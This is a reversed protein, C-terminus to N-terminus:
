PFVSCNPGHWGKSENRLHVNPALCAAEVCHSLNVVACEVDIQAWVHSSGVFVRPKKGAVGSAHTGPALDRPAFAEIVSVPLSRGELTRRDVRVRAPERASVRAGGPGTPGLATPHGSGAKGNTTPGARGPGTNLGGLCLLPRLGRRRELRGGWRGPVGRGHRGWRLGPGHPGRSAAAGPRPPPPPRWWTQRGEWFGLAPRVFRPPPPASM